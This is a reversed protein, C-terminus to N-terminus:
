HTPASPLTAPEATAPIIPLLLASPHAADHLITQHAHQSRTSDGFWDGTNPNPDFQPFDSSSIELRIRDGRHFLNSTPWITITYRYVQDPTIPSPHSLSTRYSARQIGIDGTRDAQGQVGRGCRRIGIEGGLEDDHV